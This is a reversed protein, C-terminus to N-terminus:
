SAAHLGSRPLPFDDEAEAVRQVPVLPQADEREPGDPFAQPVVATDLDQVASDQPHGKQRKDLGTAM